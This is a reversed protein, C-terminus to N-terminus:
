LCDAYGVIASSRSEDVLVRVQIQQGSDILRDEIAFIGQIARSAEDTVPWFNHVIGNYLLHQITGGLNRVVFLDFYKEFLPVIEASRIRSM